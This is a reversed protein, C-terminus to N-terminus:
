EYNDEKKDFEYCPVADHDMERGENQGFECHEGDYHLCDSCTYNKVPCRGNCIQVPRRCIDIHQCSKLM